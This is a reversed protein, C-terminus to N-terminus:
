SPVVIQSGKCMVLKNESHLITHKEGVIVVKKINTVNRQCTALLISAHRRRVFVRQGPVSQFTINIPPSPVPRVNIKPFHHTKSERVSPIFLFIFKSFDTIIPTIKSALVHGKWSNPQTSEALMRCHKSLCNEVISLLCLTIKSIKNFRDAENYNYNNLHM